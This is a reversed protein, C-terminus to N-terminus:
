RPPERRVTRPTPRADPSRAITRIGTLGEIAAALDDASLTGSEPDTDAPEHGPRSKQNM